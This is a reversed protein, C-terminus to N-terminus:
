SEDNPTDLFQFREARIQKWRNRSAKVERKLRLEEEPDVVNKDDEGYSFWSTPSTCSTFWNDDQPNQAKKQGKKRAREAKAVEEAIENAEKHKHQARLCAELYTQLQRTEHHDLGIDPSSIRLKILQRLTVEAWAFMGHKMFIGVEAFYDLIYKEQHWELTDLPMAAVAEEAMIIIEARTKRDLGELADFSDPFSDTAYETSHRFHRFGDVGCILWMPWIHIQLECIHGKLEVNIKCDRYGGALSPFDSKLTSLKVRRVVPGFSNRVLELLALLTALDKVVLLARCYDTVKLVDGDYKREAKKIAPSVEKIPGVGVEELGLSGALAKCMEVLSPLADNAKEILAKAQQTKTMTNFGKGKPQTVTKFSNSTDNLGAMSNLYPYVPDSKLREFCADYKKRDRLLSCVMRYFDWSDKIVARRKAISELTEDDLEKGDEEVVLDISYYVGAPGGMARQGAKSKPATGAGVRILTNSYAALNTYQNEMQQFDKSTLDNPMMEAHGDQENLMCEIRGIMLDIVELWTLATRQDCAILTTETGDVGIVVIGRRSEDLSPYAHAVVMERVLNKRDTKPNPPSVLTLEATSTDLRYIFLGEPVNRYWQNGSKHRLSALKSQEESVAKIRQQETWSDHPQGTQKYKLAAEREIERTKAREESRRRKQEELASKVDKPDPENYSEIVQTEESKCCKWFSFGRYKVVTETTTVKQQKVKLSKIKNDDGQQLNTNNNSDKDESGYNELKFAANPFEYAPDVFAAELIHGGPIAGNNNDTGKTETM